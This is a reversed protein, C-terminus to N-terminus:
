ESRVTHTQIIGTQPSIISIPAQRFKLQAIM